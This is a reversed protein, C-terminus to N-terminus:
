MIYKMFDLVQASHLLKETSTNAADNAAIRTVIESYQVWRCHAASVHKVDSVTAITVLVISGNLHKVPKYYFRGLDQLGLATQCRLLADFYLHVAIFFFFFLLFFVCSAAVQLAM